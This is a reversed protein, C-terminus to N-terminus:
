SASFVPAARPRVSFMVAQAPPQRAAQPDKRVSAKEAGDRLKQHQRRILAPADAAPEEPQGPLIRGRQQVEAGLRLCLREILFVSAPPAQGSKLKARSGELLM